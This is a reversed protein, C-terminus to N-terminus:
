VRLGVERKMIRPTTKPTSRSQSVTNQSSPAKTCYSRKNWDFNSYCHSNKIFKCIKDLISSYLMPNLASNIPILVIGAVAYVEPYIHVGSLYIFGIICIPIWCLFDSLLLRTVRKQLKCRPIESGLKKANRISIRIILGYLIFMIIFASFNYVLFFISYEWAIEDRSAFLRPLCVSNQSYFGLWHIPDSQPCIIGHIEQIGSITSADLSFTFINTFNNRESYTIIKQSVNRLTRIDVVEEDYLPCSTVGDTTFHLRITPILPLTGFIIALVWSFAISLKIFKDTKTSYSIVFPKFISYFRFIAMTTMMTVSAESSILALAGIASCTDSYRWLLDEYGYRGSFRTGQIAIILLYVSMILDSISLNLLQSHHGREITNLKKVKGALTYLTFMIVSANGTLGLVALIWVIYRLSTSVVMEKESSFTPIDDECEDMKYYDCKHDWRNKKFKRYMEASSNTTMNNRIKRIMKCRQLPLEDTGDECNIIGDCVQSKSISILNKSPCYFRDFCNFEEEKILTKNCSTLNQSDWKGVCILSDHLCTVEIGSSCYDPMMDSLGKCNDDCEDAKGDCEPINDCLTAKITEVTHDESTKNCLITDYKPKCYKEDLGNKCDAKGDCIKTRDICKGDGCYIDGTGKGCMSVPDVESDYLVACMTSDVEMNEECLCEDSLDQCNVIGDCVQKALIVNNRDLCYFCSDVGTKLTGNNEYCGDPIKSLVDEISYVPGTLYFVMILVTVHIDM